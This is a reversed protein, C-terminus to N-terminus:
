RPHGVIRIAAMVDGVRLWVLAEMARVKKMEEGDAEKGQELSELHRGAGELDGMEVM